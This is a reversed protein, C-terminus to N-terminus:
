KGITTVLYSYLKSGDAGVIQKLMHYNNVYTANIVSLVNFLFYYFVEMALAMPANYLNVFMEVFSSVTMEGIRGKLEPITVLKSLFTSIDKFDEPVFQDNVMRISGIDPNLCEYLCYNEMVDSSPNYGLVTQIFYRGLMFLLQNRLRPDLKVNYKRNMCELMMHEYIRAAPRILHTSTLKPNHAMDNQMLRLTIYCSELAVKLKRTNTTYETEGKQADCHNLVIFGCYVGPKAQLIVFPLYLPIRITDSYLLAMDGQNLADIIEQIIPSRLRNRIINIDSTIMGIPTVGEKSILGTIRSMIANNANMVNWQYSSALSAYM